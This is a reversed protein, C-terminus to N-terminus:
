RTAEVGILATCRRVAHQANAQSQLYTSSAESTRRLHAAHAALDRTVWARLVEPMLTGKFPGRSRMVLKHGPNPATEAEGSGQRRGAPGQLAKIPKGISSSPEPPGTM